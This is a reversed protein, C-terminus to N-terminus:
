TIERNLVRLVSVEQKELDVMGLGILLSEFYVRIIEKDRSFDCGSIRSLMLGGGNVFRVAQANTVKVCRNRKFLVDIDQLLTDFKCDKDRIKELPIAEDISFGNSEVRRLSYMCAGCGLEQGIDSCLTRIYTGKSCRVRIKAINTEKNFYILDNSSINIKRADREIEKGERALEYLKKGNKKIASYMPPVQEIDGTFKNLVVKIEEDTINVDKRTLVKGTMDQTDTTIGFQVEAEYVKDADEMFTQVRTGTGLLVPLVGTAMPDLTGTHGVKKEGSLRRIIAVVDFSTYGSPKDVVIVGNM